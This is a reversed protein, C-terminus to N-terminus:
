PGRRKARTIRGRCLASTAPSRTRPRLDSHFVRVTNASWARAAAAVLQPDVLVQRPALATVEAVIDVAPSTIEPLASLSTLGLGGSDVLSGDSQDM